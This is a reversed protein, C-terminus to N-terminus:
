FVIARWLLCLWTQKRPGGTTREGVLISLFFNAGKNWCREVPSDLNVHGHTKNPFWVLSEHVHVGSNQHGGLQDRRFAERRQTARRM